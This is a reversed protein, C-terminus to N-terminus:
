PGERTLRKNDLSRLSFMLGRTILIIFPFSRPPRMRVGVIQDTESVHGSVGPLQGVFLNQTASLPERLSGEPDIASNVVLLVKRYEECPTRPSGSSKRMSSRAHVFNFDLVVESTGMKESVIMPPTLIEVTM